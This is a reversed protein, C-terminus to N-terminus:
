GNVQLLLKRIAAELDRAVQPEANVRFQGIGPFTLNIPAIQNQPNDAATSRLEQNALKAIATSLTGYRGGYKIQGPNSFYPVDFGNSATFERSLELARARGIGYAELESAVTLGNWTRVGATRNSERAALLAKESEERARAAEDAIATYGGAADYAARGAKDTADAAETMARLTIKGAKDVIVEFGHMAAEAQIASGAVGGNAAIAAAAYRAWGASLDALSAGKTRLLDLAVKLEAAEKQLIAQSTIGLRKYAEELSNIGPTLGDVKERAARLAEALLQGAKGGTIGLSEMRAEIAAIDQPTSANKLADILAGQIARGADVGKAGLAETHDAILDVHALAQQAGSSIGDTLVGWDQGSAAIARHLVGDMVEALARAGRESGGFAAEAAIAFQQLQRGDMKALAKTWEAGVQEAGIVGQAALEDLAQGYARVSAVSTPDFLAGMEALAKGVAEAAPAGKSKLDEVQQTFDAVLVAAQPDILNAVAERTLQAAADVERLGASLAALHKGAEEKSVASKQGLEEALAAERYMAEWYERAGELSAQYREREAEGMRQVNAAVQVAVDRYGSLEQAAAQAAGRQAALEERYKALRERTGDSQLAMEALVESVKKVGAIAVDYGLIGITILWQTPIARITNMAASGARQVVGWGAAIVGTSQRTQAAAEMAVAQAEIRAASVARYGAMTAATNAAIAASEARLAAVNAASVRSLDTSAQVSLSKATALRNQAATVATAAAVSVEALRAEAATAAATATANAARAAAVDRELAARQPGYIAAAEAMARDALLQDLTAQTSRARAAAEQAAASAAAVSTDRVAKARRLEALAAADSSAARAAMETASQVAARAAVADASSADQAARARAVDAAAAERAAVVAQQVAMASEAAARGALTSAEASAVTAARTSVMVRGYEVMAAGARYVFGALVAEGALLAAAAIEDINEAVTNLAEAAGTTAGSTQDLRGLFLLWENGLRQTARGITEPIASFDRDIAAAQDQLAAIVVDASLKGEQAMNRLEGTSVNLSAALAQMLRPAQEMVSNFEDGRLVGSALAQSLQRTAGAAEAGSAGTIAFSKQITSTLGQIESASGKTSRALVAYLDATAVIDSGVETSTAHVRDLADALGAGEGAVLRLRAAMGKYEEAIAAVEQAQNVLFDATLALGVAALGKELLGTKGAAAEAQDGVGAVGNGIAAVEGAAQKGDATIRLKLDLEKNAM